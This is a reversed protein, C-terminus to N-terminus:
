VKKVLLGLNKLERVVERVGRDSAHSNLHLTVENINQRATEEKVMKAVEKYCELSRPAVVPASGKLKNFADFTSIDVVPVGENFPSSFRVVKAHVHRNTAWFFLKLPRFVLPKLP